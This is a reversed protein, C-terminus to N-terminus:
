LAAQSNSFVMAGNRAREPSDQVIELAMEVARLEASYVTSDHETGMQCHRHEHTAEVMAAAGVKGDIGSGDTYIILKGQGQGPSSIKAHKKVAEDRELIHV